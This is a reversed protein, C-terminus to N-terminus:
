NSSRNALNVRKGQYNIKQVVYVRKMLPAKSQIVIGECEHLFDKTKFRLYSALSTYLIKNLNLRWKHFPDIIHSPVIHCCMACCLASHRIM